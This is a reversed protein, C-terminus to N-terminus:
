GGVNGPFCNRSRSVNFFESSARQWLLVVAGLGILWVFFLFAETPRSAPGRLSLDAPGILLMLTYLGFLGSATVRASSQGDTVARAIFLWLFVSVLSVIAAM